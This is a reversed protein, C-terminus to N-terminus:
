VSTSVVTAAMKRVVLGVLLVAAGTIVSVVPLTLGLAICGALGAVAIWRPWRRQTSPLTLCAVNTIAYYTSSPSAPSASRAAFTSADRHARDGGRRRRGRRAAPALPPRRDDRVLDAARPSPGHRARDAFRRPHPQPARGLSAIGAGVRVIPTSGTSRRRPQRGTRATRRQRRHRRRAAHRAATVGVVAYIASCEQLLARSRRPSRRPRTASRRASPPSAPTAPSRSSCSGAPECSAPRRPTSRAHDPDALDDADVLRRARGLGARRARDRATGEHRPGHPDVWRPQRDGRRRRRRDRRATRARAVPLRRRDLAIAVCSATKGVVFGWGALYGWTPGLQRRGYM